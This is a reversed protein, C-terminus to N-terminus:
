QTEEVKEGEVEVENKENAKEESTPEQAPTDTMTEEVIPDQTNTDEDM